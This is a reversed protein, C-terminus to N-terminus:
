RLQQSSGKAVMPNPPTIALVPARATVTLNVDASVSRYQATAKATGEAVGVFRGAGDARAIEPTASEWTAEATVDRRRGDALTVTATLQVPDGVIASADTPSLSLLLPSDNSGCAFLLALAPLASVLRPRLPM